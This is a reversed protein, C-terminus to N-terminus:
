WIKFDAMHASAIIAPKDISVSSPVMNSTFQASSWSVRLPFAMMALLSTMAVLPTICKTLSSSMGSEPLELRIKKKEFRAMRHASALTFLPVEDGRFQYRQPFQDQTTRDWFVLTLKATKNPCIAMREGTNPLGDFSAPLQSKLLDAKVAPDVQDQSM